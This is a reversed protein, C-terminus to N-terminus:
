HRVCYYSPLRNIVSDPGSFGIITMMVDILLPFVLVDVLDSLRFVQEREDSRVVLLTAVSWNEDLCWSSILIVIIVVLHVKLNLNNITHYKEVAKYM